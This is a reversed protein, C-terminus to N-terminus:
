KDGLNLGSRGAHIAELAVKARFEEDYHKGISRVIYAGTETDALLDFKGLNREVIRRIELSLVTLICYCMPVAQPLNLIM